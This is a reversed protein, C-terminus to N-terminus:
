RRILGFTSEGGMLYPKLMMDISRYRVYQPLTPDYAVTIDGVKVMSEPRTLDPALAGSNSTLALLACAGSVEVPVINNAVYASFNGYGYPADTIPVFARPWDLPQLANVRMGRWNGRYKQIMYDTAKRLAADKDDVLDWADGLARNTLYITAAAVSIYSDAGAVVAGTEVVVATM